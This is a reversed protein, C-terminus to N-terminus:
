VLIDVASLCNVESVNTSYSFCVFGPFFMGVAQFCVLLGTRKM